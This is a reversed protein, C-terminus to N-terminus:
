KYNSYYLSFLNFHFTMKEANEVFLFILILIEGILCLVTTSTVPLYLIYVWIIAYLIIYKSFIVFFLTIYLIVYM